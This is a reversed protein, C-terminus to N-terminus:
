ILIKPQPPSDPLFEPTKTMEVVCRVETADIVFALQGGSFKGKLEECRAGDSDILVAIKGPFDVPQIECRTICESFPQGSKVNLVQPEFEMRGDELKAVGVIGLLLIPRHLFLCIRKGFYPELWKTSQEPSPKQLAALLPGAMELLAGLNVGLSMDGSPTEAMTEGDKKKTAM